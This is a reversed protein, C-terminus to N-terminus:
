PLRFAYVSKNPDIAGCGSTGGTFYAADGVASASHGHLGTPHKALVLWRNAKPDYAENDKFTEHTQPNQCEGGVWLLLGHYAVAAGASRATPMPALAKWSDTAPDYMETIAVNDVAGATRGGFVYVRAGISAIGLHDRAVALPAAKTWKGSAPDYIQHTGVTKTEADRGGVVHLKGGAAVLGVAGLPAAIPALTRWSNTTPDYEAFQDLPNKHTNATFGGAIYIKGNLAAVGVHSAGKPMPALDRWRGTAPDFEQNLPSDERGLASGGLMYIKGNVEASSVETRDTTMMGAVSWAGQSAAGQAFPAAASFGLLAFLLAAGLILGARFRM